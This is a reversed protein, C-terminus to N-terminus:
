LSEGALCMEIVMWFVDVLDNIRRIITHICCKSVNELVGVLLFM